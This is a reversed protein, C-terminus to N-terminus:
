AAETSAFLNTETQAKATPSRQATTMQPGTADVPFGSAYRNKLQWLTLAAQFMAWGRSADLENWPVVEVRRDEIGVFVSLLRPTAGPMLGAACAALQQIHEDYALKKGEIKPKTKYDLLVNQRKCHWDNKGGFGLPHAFSREADGALFDVGVEALARDVAEIHPRWEDAVPKRQVALELATHCEAGRDRAQEAQQQSDRKARAKFNDLSEGEVRPLTLAAMLAQDVLWNVLGPASQVKLIGTVGPLLGLKRAHRIDPTVQQGNAGLVTYVPQGSRDYWHTSDKAIETM